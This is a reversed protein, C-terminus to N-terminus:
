WHNFLNFAWQLGGAPLPGAAGAKQVLGAQARTNSKPLRHQKKPILVALSVSTQHPDTKLFLFLHSLLQQSEAIGAAEALGESWISTM